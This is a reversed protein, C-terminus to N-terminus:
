CGISEGWFVGVPIGVSKGVIGGVTVMAGGVIVGVGFNGM